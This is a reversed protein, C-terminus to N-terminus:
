DDDDEDVQTTFSRTDDDAELHTSDPLSENTITFTAVVAQEALLATMAGADGCQELRICLNAVRGDHLLMEDSIATDVGIPDSCGRSNTLATLIRTMHEEIESRLSGSIAQPAVSDYIPPSTTLLVSAPSLVVRLSRQQRACDGRTM